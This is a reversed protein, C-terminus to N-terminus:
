PWPVFIIKIENKSNPKIELLLPTGEDKEALIWDYPSWVVLYYFDPEINNIVLFGDNTTFGHIDGQKEDPGSIIPPVRNNDGIAPMLYYATNQILQSNIPSYLVASLSGLGSNPEPVDPFSTIDKLEIIESNFNPEPYGQDETIQPQIIPYIDSINTDPTKTSDDHNCSSLLILPFLFYIFSRFISLKM